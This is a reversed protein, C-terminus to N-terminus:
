KRAAILSKKKRILIMWIVGGLLWLPWIKVLIIILSQVMLWGDLVSEKLANWFGYENQPKLEPSLQQFFTLRITSLAALNQIYNIRGAASEIEEQLNRIENQVKLVEDINRAQKLFDYYRDKVKEKAQMRAKTDIFEESVDESTLNKQAVSDAYGSLRDLLADFKEWPVRIVMENKIQSSLQVESASAIYGGTSRVAEKIAYVSSKTDSVYMELVANKIIQKNWDAPVPPPSQLQNNQSKEDPSKQKEQLMEENQLRERNAPIEATNIDTMTLEASKVTKKNKLNCSLLFGAIAMVAIPIRLYMIFFKNLLYICSVPNQM